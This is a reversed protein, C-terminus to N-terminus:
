LMVDAMSELEEVPEKFLSDMYDPGLAVLNEFSINYSKESDATELIQNEFDIVYTFDLWKLDSPAIWLTLPFLVKFTLPSKSSVLFSQWTSTGYDLLHKADGSKIADLVAGM